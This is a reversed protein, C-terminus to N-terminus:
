EWKKKKIREFNRKRNKDNKGTVFTNHFRDFKNEVVKKYKIWQWFTKKTGKIPFIGGSEEKKNFSVSKIHWFVVSIIYHINEYGFSELTLCYIKKKHIMGYDFEKRREWESSLMMKFSSSMVGM